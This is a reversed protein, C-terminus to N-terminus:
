LQSNLIFVCCKQQTKKIHRNDNINNMCPSPIPSEMYLLTRLPVSCPTSPRKIATSASTLSPRGYFLISPNKAVSSGCALSRSFVVSFLVGFCFGGFCCRDNRINLNDSHLIQFQCNLIQQAVMENRRLRKCSIVSPDRSLEFFIKRIHFSLMYELPCCLNRYSTHM